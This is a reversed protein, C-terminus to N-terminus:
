FDQLHVEDLLPHNVKYLVTAISQSRVLLQKFFFLRDVHPMILLICALSGEVHPPRHLSRFFCRCRFLRFHRGLLFHLQTFLLCSILTHLLHGLRSYIGFPVVVKCLALFLCEVGWNVVLLLSLRGPLILPKEQRRVFILVRSIRACYIKLRIFPLVFKSRSIKTCHLRQLRSHLRVGIVPVEM